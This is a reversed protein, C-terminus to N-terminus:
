PGRRHTFVLTVMPNSGFGVQFLPVRPRLAPHTCLTAIQASQLILVIKPKINHLMDCTAPLDTKGSSQFRNKHSISGGYWPVFCFARSIIDYDSRIADLRYNPEFADDFSGAKGYRIRSEESDLNDM